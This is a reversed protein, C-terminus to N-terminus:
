RFNASGISVDGALFEKIEGSSTRVLLGGNESLGVTEGEVVGETNTNVKVQRGMTCNRQMWREHLWPFGKEKFEEYWYEMTQLIRQLLRARFIKNGTELRVSTAAALCDVPFDEETHNVNIGIGIVAYEAKGKERAPRAEALIGCIKKGKVLIDNPWKVQADIGTEQALAEAVVAAALFTLMPVQVMPLDPRLILSFYIGKEAPSAWNRNFRGRGSDQQEAAVVAGNPAGDQAWEVAFANTSDIQEFVRVVRGMYHTSINEEVDWPFLTEPLHPLSVGCGGDYVVQYGRAELACLAESLEEHNLQLVQEICEKNAPEKQNKLFRLLALSNQGLPQIERNMM